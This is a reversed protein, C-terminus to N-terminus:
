CNEKEQKTYILSQELIGTKRALVNLATHVTERAPFPERALIFVGPPRPISNSPSYVVAWSSYDTDLIWYNAMGPIYDFKVKLKAPQNTEPAVAIGHVKSERIPFPYMRIGRNVLNVRSKDDLSYTATVCKLGIEFLSPTKAIEYWLGLYQNLTFNNTPQVHDHHPLSFLSVIPDSTPAIALTSGVLAFVTFVWTCIKVFM